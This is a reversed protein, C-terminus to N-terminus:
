HGISSTQERSRDKVPSECTGQCVLWVSHKRGYRVLTAYPKVQYGPTQSFRDVLPNGYDLPAPPRQDLEARLVLFSSNQRLFPDRNVISGGFYGVKRWNEMLHYQTVELLPADPSVSRPWDLMYTYKVGSAHQRGILEAFSWADECVVPVGKPLMATLDNTYERPPIVYLRVHWFVWLLLLGAFCALAAPRGWPKTKLFAPSFREWDILTVAEATLFVQALTVPMLYRNVFLSPGFWGEILYAIPVLLISITVIWVPRRTQYAKSLPEIWGDPDRRVTLVLAVTLLLLVLAVETSFGTYAGIFRTITPPTTWFHPKGVNASAIIAAREPILLLWSAAACAYLTPRLRRSSWDLVIIAALLFCSYVIGLLHSTTLLAHLLFTPPYLYFLSPGSRRTPVITFWLVATASLTLLGYFRGEAMHVVLWTSFFWTNFLAFAVAGFSYFRRATIWAIVFAMGLCTASYMRLSIESPGFLYFWLRGTLYFGFGGGDAGMKWAWIMHRWSPDRLLMWGLMEDEWFIRGHAFVYSITLCLLLGLLMCLYDATSLRHGSAKNPSANRASALEARLETIQETKLM